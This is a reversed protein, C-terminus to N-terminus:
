EAEGVKQKDNYKKVSICVILTILCLAGAIPAEIRLFSENFLGPRLSQVETVRISKDPLIQENYLVLMEGVSELLNERKEVIGQIETEMEENDKEKQANTKEARSTKLKGLDEKKMELRTKLETIEDTLRASEAVANDYQEQTDQKLILTTKKGVYYTTENGEYCAIIENAYGLENEKRLLENELERIEYECTLIKNEENKTVAKASVVGNAHVIDTKLVGNACSIVNDPISNLRIGKKKANEKIENAFNKIQEFSETLSNLQEGYDKEDNINSSTIYNEAKERYENLFYEKYSELLLRHANILEEQSLKPEFDNKLYLTFMTPKYEKSADLRYVDPENDMVKTNNRSADGATGIFNNKWQVFPYRAFVGSKEKALEYVDEQLYIMPRFARGTPTEGTSAESM